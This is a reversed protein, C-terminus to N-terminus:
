MVSWVPVHVSAHQDDREGDRRQAAQGAPVLDDLQPPHEAQEREEVAVSCRSVHITKTWKKSTPQMTSSTTLRGNMVIPM